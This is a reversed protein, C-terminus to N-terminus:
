VSMRKLSIRGIWGNSRIIIAEMFSAERRHSYYRKEM